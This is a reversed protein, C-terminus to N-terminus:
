FTLDGIEQGIENHKMVGGCVKQRIGGKIRAEDTIIFLM